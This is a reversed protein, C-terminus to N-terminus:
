IGMLGLLANYPNLGLLFKTGGEKTVVFEEIFPTARELRPIQNHETKFVDTFQDNFEDAKESISHAIGGGNRKMLPPVKPIKKRVISSGIFIRPILSLM